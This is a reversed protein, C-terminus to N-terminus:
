CLITDALSHAPVGVEKAEKSHWPSFSKKWQASVGDTAKDRCELGCQFAKAREKRDNSQLSIFTCEETKKAM